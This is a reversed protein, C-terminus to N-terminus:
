PINLPPSQPTYPSTHFYPHLPFRAVFLIQRPSVRGTNCLVTQTPTATLEPCASSVILASPLNHLSPRPKSLPFPQLLIAQAEKFMLPASHNTQTSISPTDICTAPSTSEGRSPANCRLPQRALLAHRRESAARRSSATVGFPLSRHHRWFSQHIIRGKSTPRSIDPNEAIVLRRKQGAAKTGQVLGTILAFLELHAKRM